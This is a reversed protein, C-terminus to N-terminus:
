LADVECRNKRTAADLGLLRRAEGADIERCVFRAAIEDLRELSGAALALAYREVGLAAALAAAPDAAATM